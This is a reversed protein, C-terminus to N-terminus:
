HGIRHYLILFGDITSKEKIPLYKEDIVERIEKPLGKRYDILVWQANGNIFEQNTKEYVEHNYYNLATM